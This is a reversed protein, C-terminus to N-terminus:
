SLKVKTSLLTELPPEIPPGSPGTPTPHQHKKLWLLLAKGLPVQENSGALQVADAQVDCLTTKVVVKSKSSVTIVGNALKIYTGDKDTLSVEGDKMLVKNKNVDEIHFSKKDADLTVTTKQADTLVINGNPDFSISSTKSGVVGAAKGDAKSWVLQVQEEDKLDNFVLYHGAKTTIGRRTPASPNDPDKAKEYGCSPPLGDKLFFGGWYGVPQSASGNRFTLWVMGGEEPPSFMGIGKGSFPTIPDIWVDLAKTQGIDPCYAQIRGQQAPDKNSSVIGRYVGYYSGFFELGKRTLTEILDDLM